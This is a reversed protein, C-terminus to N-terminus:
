LAAGKGGFFIAPSIPAVGIPALLGGRRAEFASDIVTLKGPADRV